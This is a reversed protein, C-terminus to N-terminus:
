FIRIIRDTALRIKEGQDPDVGRDVVLVHVVPLEVHHVAAPDELGRIADVLVDDEALVLGAHRPDLGSRRQRGCDSKSSFNQATCLNPFGLHFFGM